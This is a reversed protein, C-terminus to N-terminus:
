PLLFYTSTAYKDGIRLWVTAKQLTGSAEIIVWFEPIKIEEDHMCIWEAGNKRMMIKQEKHRVEIVEANKQVLLENSVVDPDPVLVDVKSNFIWNIRSFIYQEVKLEAIRKDTTSSTQLLYFAVVVSTSIFVSFLSLYILLEILTFGKNM